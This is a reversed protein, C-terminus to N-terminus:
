REEVQGGCFEQVITTEPGERGDIQRSLQAQQSIMTESFTRIKSKPAPFFNGNRPLGSTSKGTLSVTSVSKSCHVEHGGGDGEM